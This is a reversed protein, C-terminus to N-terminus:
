DPTPRDFRDIVFVEANVKKRELKLGLQEQLATFITRADDSPAVDGSWRLDLDFTGTLQTQDEVPASVESILFQQLSTISEGVFKATRVVDYTIRGTSCLPEFKPRCDLTSPTINPGLRDPRNRVLAYGEVQRNERHFQLQFREALLTRVMSLLEDHRVTRTTRALIDFRTQRAWMPVGVLQFDKLEYGFHLLATASVNQGRIGDPRPGLSGGDNLSQSQKISAVEFALQASLASGGLMAIVALSGVWVSRPM